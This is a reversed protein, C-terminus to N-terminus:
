EFEVKYFSSSLEDPENLVTVKFSRGKLSDFMRLESKDLLRQILEIEKGPRHSIIFNEMNTEDANMENELLESWESQYSAMQRVVQGSHEGNPIVIVSSEHQAVPHGQAYIFGGAYYFADSDINVNGCPGTLIARECFVVNSVFWDCSVNAESVTGELTMNLNDRDIEVLHEYIWHEKDLNNNTLFLANLYFAYMSVQFPEDICHDEDLNLILNDGNVIDQKAIVSDQLSYQDELDSGHIPYIDYVGLVETPLYDVTNLLAIQDWFKLTEFYRKAIFQGDLNKVDSILRSQWYLKIMAMVQNIVEKEDILKDRDPLRGKFQSADLHVINTQSCHAARSRYVQIGQLYVTLDQTGLRFAKDIPKDLDTIRMDGLPTTIFDLPGDLAHDRKQEEGNFFVKIPYGHSFGSVAGAVHLDLGTLTIRTGVKKDSPFVSIMNFNLVSETHFEISMSNSEIKVHEASFLASMFGLGYPTESDKIDESWGSEAITLITQPDDLGCGQDEVVLVKNDEDYNFSVYDSGARRANQMLESIVTFKNTFAYRLHNVLNEKNIKLQVSKMIHEKITIPVGDVRRTHHERM